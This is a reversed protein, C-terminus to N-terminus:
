DTLYKFSSYHISAITTDVKYKDSILYFNIGAKTDFPLCSCSLSDRHVNMRNESAIDTDHNSSSSGLLRLRKFSAVRREFTIQTLLITMAEM